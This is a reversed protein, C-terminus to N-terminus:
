SEYTLGPLGLAERVLRHFAAGLAKERVDPTMRAGFPSLESEAERTLEAARAADIEAMAADLLAKDLEALREILADRKEGRASRAYDVLKELEDAAARVTEQLHGSISGGAEM